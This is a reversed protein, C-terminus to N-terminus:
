KLTFDGVDVRLVLRKEIMDVLQACLMSIDRPNRLSELEQFGIRGLMEGVLFAEMGLGSIGAGELVLPLVLGKGLADPFHALVVLGGAMIQTREHLHVVGNDFPELLVNEM